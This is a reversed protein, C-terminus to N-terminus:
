IIKIKTKKNIIRLLILLDKKKLAICGLTKKYNNTLHIFIASGLGKITNKHNYKIVLFIDYKYDKRHLLEYKINKNKITQKNYFKSKIDNCWVMNQKIAKSKIFTKPKNMRDKRYYLTGLEFIGKPTTKDGEVKNKKIGNKGICCKFKFNDFKLKDKNKLNILM